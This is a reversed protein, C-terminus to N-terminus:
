PHPVSSLIALSARSAGVVFIMSSRALDMRDLLSEGSMENSRDM